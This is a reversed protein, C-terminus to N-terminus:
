GARYLADTSGQRKASHLLRAAGHYLPHPILKPITKKQTKPNKKKPHATEMAGMTYNTYNSAMIVLM